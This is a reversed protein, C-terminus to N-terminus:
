KSRSEVKPVQLVKKLGSGVHITLIISFLFVIPHLEEFVIQFSLVEM